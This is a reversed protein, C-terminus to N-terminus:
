TPTAFLAEDCFIRVTFGNIFSVHLGQPEQKRALDEDLFSLWDCGEDFYAIEIGEDVVPAAIEGLDNFAVRVDGRCTLTARLPLGDPAIAHENRRFSLDVEGGALDTGFHELDYANHLDIVRDSWRVVSIGDFQFNRKLEAEEPLSHPLSHGMALRPLPDDAVTPSSSGRILESKRSSFM